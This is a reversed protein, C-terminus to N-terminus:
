LPLEWLDATQVPRMGVSEYLKLAATPNNTDVHLLTGDLGAAADVAFAHRLLYKALGRGRAEPIVGLRGVYGCNELEVFMQNCDSAAAPRGDLEVLTVQSWDATARKEHVDVWDDYPRVAESEQDAFAATMVAHIARRAEEGDAATRLATGAPPEPVAVPGTHDIRMRYYTTSLTFGAATVLEALLKDARHSGIEVVGGAGLQKRAQQVGKDLLWASGPSDVSAIAVQAHRGSGGFRLHSYNVPTGADDLVLWGHEEPEFTSLSLAEAVEALTADPRGIVRTHYAAMLRYIAEADDPRPARVTLGAPLESM